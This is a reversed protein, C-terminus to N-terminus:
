SCPWKYHENMYEASKLPFGEREWERARERLCVIMHEDAMPSQLVRSWRESSKDGM